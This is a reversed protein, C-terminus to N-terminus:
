CLKKGNWLYGKSFSQHAAVNTLRWQEASLHDEETNYDKLYSAAYKLDETFTCLFEANQIVNCMRKRDIVEM